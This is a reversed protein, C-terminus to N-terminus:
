STLKFRMTSQRTSLPRGVKLIGIMLRINLRKIELTM